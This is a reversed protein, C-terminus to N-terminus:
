FRFYLFPNYASNVLYVVCLAFGLVCFIASLHDAARSKEFFKYFLKKPMPTCAIVAVAIFFINRLIDYADAGNAFGAGGVGFMNGLYTLAASAGLTPTAGDFAFILWGFVIFILAYAHSFFAPLKELLKGLFALKGARRRVRELVGAVAADDVAARALLDLAQLLRKNPCAHPRRPIM